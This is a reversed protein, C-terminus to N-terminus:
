DVASEGGEDGELEGVLSEGVVGLVGREPAVVPGEVCEDADESVEKGEEVLLAEDM